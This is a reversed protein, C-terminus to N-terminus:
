ILTIVTVEPPCFLRGPRYTGLGRNVYLQNNAVQHFGQAWEWYRVVKSCDGLLFPVWRRLKKPAKKLLKKYHYVVPGIGPLVIHGGHTHGSLQLDVRWQELIKATDPNHSLVIRPTNPDLKNM